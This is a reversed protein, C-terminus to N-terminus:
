GDDDGEPELGVGNETLLALGKETLLYFGKKDPQPIVSQRTNSLDPALTFRVYRNRDVPM